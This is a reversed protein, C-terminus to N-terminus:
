RIPGETSSWLPTFDTGKLKAAKVRAVFRDTYFVERPEEPVRFIEADGIASEIFAPKKIYVISTGEVHHMETREMDLVNRTGLANHVFLEVGDETAVPLLEGHAELVDKLAEVASRRLLFAVHAYPLDAPKNGSRKTAPGREVLPPVWGEKRSTGDFDAFLRIVEYSACTVFEYGTTNLRNYIIM